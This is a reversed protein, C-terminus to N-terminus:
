QLEGITKVIYDVVEQANLNGPKRKPMSWMNVSSPRSRKKGVTKKKEDLGIIENGQSLFYKMGLMDSTDWAEGHKVAWEANIAEIAQQVDCSEWKEKSMVVFFSTTYALDFAATMYDTVEGLKWGKHIPYLVADVVGKQLMEYTEPMPKPVPAM